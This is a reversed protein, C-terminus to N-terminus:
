KEDQYDLNDVSHKVLVIYDLVGNAFAFGMSSVVFSKKLHPVHLALQEEGMDPPLYQTGEEYRTDYVLSVCHESEIVDHYRASHKGLKGFDFFVQKKAKLPVPGNVFPMKLTEFGVIVASATEAQADEYDKVRQPKPQSRRVMSTPQEEEDGDDEDRARKRPIPKDQWDEDEHQMPAPIMGHPPVGVPRNALAPPGAPVPLPQGRNQLNAVQATLTQVSQALQMMMQQTGPDPQPPYYPQQQPAYQPQPTAYQQQPYQPPPQQPAQAQPPAAPTATQTPMPMNLPPVPQVRPEQYSPTPYQPYVPQPMFEALQKGGQDSAPVVYAGPMVPNVRPPEPMKMQGGYSADPRYTKAPMGLKYFAEHPYSSTAMVHNMDRKTVQSLDVVAGGDPADPDVHVVGAQDADFGYSSGDKRSAPVVAFAGVKSGPMREAERWDPYHYNHKDPAHRVVPSDDKAEPNDWWAANQTTM